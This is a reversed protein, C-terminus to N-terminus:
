SFPTAETGSGNLMGRCMWTNTAVDELEIWDGKKGGTTGNNLTITTSGSANTAAVATFLTGAGTDTNMFVGGFIYAGDAVITHSTAAIMVDFKFRAGTGAAAPLTCAFGTGSNLLCTKSDHLALTINTATTLSVIRTSLKAARNIEAATALLGTLLASETSTITASKFSCSLLTGENIYLFLGSTTADIDLWICGPAYGPTTDTPKTTGWDFTIGVGTQGMVGPQTFQRRFKRSM